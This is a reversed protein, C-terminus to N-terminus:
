KSEMTKDQWIVIQDRASQADAADPVLELYAQMHEVAEEYAGLESAILASNFRGQPWTPYLKLGAEYHIMAKVLQKEKVANEALVRQKRVEDPIPPKSALARWTAAQQPFGSEVTGKRLAIARLRNIAVVFSKEALECDASCHLDNTAPDHFWIRSFVKAAESESVFLEQYETRIKVGRSAKSKLTKLPKGGDDELLTDYAFSVVKVNSELTRVDVVENEGKGCGYSSTDLTFGSATFRVSARDIRVLTHCKTVLRGFQLAELIQQRTEWLSMSDAQAYSVRTEDAAKMVPISLLMIVLAVLNANTRKM